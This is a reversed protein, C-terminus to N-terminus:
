TTSPSDTRAIPPLGPPHTFPSGPTAAGSGYGTNNTGAGQQFNNSRASELEHRLTEIERTM